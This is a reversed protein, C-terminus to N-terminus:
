NKRMDAQKITDAELIVLYKYTEKERLTRIKEQNLPKVRVTLNRKRSKMILMACKEIDFEMGLDDCSIRVAQISNEIRKRRSLTVQHNEIPTQTVVHRRLVGPGKETNQGIKVISSKPHHRSTRWNEVRGAGKNVRQPDDRTCRNCNADTVKM